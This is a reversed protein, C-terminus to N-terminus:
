KLQRLVDPYGAEVISVQDVMQPVLFNKYNWQNSYCTQPQIRVYEM